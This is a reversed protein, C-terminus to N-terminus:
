PNQLEKDFKGQEMRTRWFDAFAQNLDDCLQTLDLSSSAIPLVLSGLKFTLNKEYVFVSQTFLHENLVWGATHCSVKLAVRSYPLINNWTVDKRTRTEKDWHWSLKTDFRSTVLSDLAKFIM